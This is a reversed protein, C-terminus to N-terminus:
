QDAKHGALRTELARWKLRVAAVSAAKVPGFGRIGDPVLALDRALPATEVSLRDLILDVSRRYESM